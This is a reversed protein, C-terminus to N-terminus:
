SMKSQSRFFMQSIPIILLGVVVFVLFANKLGFAHALYGIMPPGIFMGLIGYTSIISIAMGPSYKKSTGALAFTMPFIAATGFGVLCFGLLATWFYPFIVAVLIGVSIVVASFVFTKKTGIEQILKDSYFRSLAMCAMFSLYGYTFVEEKIVEKFFVGSWDFMGGECIAALFIIIGLYLIFPDPKGFILKNGTPSKDNKITYLYAVLTLVMTFISVGLLHSEISVNLKVMVTSFAVGILGGTSWLGHFSGVIRKEFKRQLIISQTNMAINLIRMFFSFLSIAIVLAFTSQVYGIWILSINFLTFSVLLPNRSDFKSVLWGSIPLGILSSIPMALLITGLEAENLNFFTKITPIRSAWTAFSLGSLFFFTGLALRQKVKLDM